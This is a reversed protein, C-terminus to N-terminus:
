LDQILTIQRTQQTKLDWVRLSIQIALIPFPANISDYDGNLPPQLAPDTLDLFEALRPDAPNALPYGFPTAPQGQPAPIQPARVIKIDFSVVDTLLISDVSNPLNNMRISRNNQGRPVQVAPNDMDPERTPDALDRPSNFRLPNSGQRVSIGNTYLPDAAVGAANIARNDVVCLRAIRHLSYLPTGNATWTAPLPQLFYAVEAWQCRYVNGQDQYRADVPQNFFTTNTNLLPSGGPVPASFFDEPRNGRLKVALHLVHGVGRTSPVGDSGVGEPTGPQFQKIRVFGERPRHFQSPTVLAPDSLRIRGEFHDADLDRRLLTTAARLRESMDGLAKLKGFTDLGVIFSTSLVAMILMILAMTILLEILTYGKRHM